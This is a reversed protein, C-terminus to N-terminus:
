IITAPDLDYSIVLGQESPQDLTFNLIPFLRDGERVRDGCLLVKGGVFWQFHVVFEASPPPSVGCEAAFKSRLPFNIRCCCKTLSSVRLM